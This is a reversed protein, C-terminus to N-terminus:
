DSREFKKTAGSSICSITNRTKYSLFKPFIQIKWLYKTVVLNKAIMLLWSEQACTLSIAFLAISVYGTINSFQLNSPGALKGHQPLTSTSKKARWHLKGKILLIRPIKWLLFCTFLYQMERGARIIDSRQSLLFSSFFKAMQPLFKPQVPVRAPM